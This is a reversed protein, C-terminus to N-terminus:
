SSTVMPLTGLGEGVESSAQTRCLKCAERPHLECHQVCVHVDAATSSKSLGPAPKTSYGIGVAHATCDRLMSFVVLATFTTQLGGTANAM